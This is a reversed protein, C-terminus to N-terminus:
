IRAWPYSWDVALHLLTDSELKQICEILIRSNLIRPAKLLYVSTM